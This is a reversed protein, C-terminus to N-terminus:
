LFLNFNISVGISVGFVREILPRISGINEGAVIMETYRRYAFTAAAQVTLSHTASYDGGVQLRVGEGNLGNASQLITLREYGCTMTPRLSSQALLRQTYELAAGGVSGQGGLMQKAIHSTGAYVRLAVMSLPTFNYGMGLSVEFSGMPSLSSSNRTYMSTLCIGKPYEAISCDSSSPQSSTVPSSPVPNQINLNTCCLVLAMIM